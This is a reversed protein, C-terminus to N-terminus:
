MILWTDSQSRCKIPNGKKKAQKKPKKIEYNRWNLIKQLHRKEIM